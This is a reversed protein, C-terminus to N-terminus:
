KCINGTDDRAQIHKYVCCTVGENTGSGTRTYAERNYVFCREGIFTHKANEVAILM